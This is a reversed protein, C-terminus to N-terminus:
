KKRGYDRWTGPHISIRVVNAHWDDALYGYDELPRRRPM